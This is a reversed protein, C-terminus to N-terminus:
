QDEQKERENLYQFLDLQYTMGEKKVANQITVGLLRVPESNWHQELLQEAYAFLEDAMEIYDKLKIRRTITKRDNYRITLQVSDGVAKKRKLRKEVKDALYRLQGRLEDYDVIDHPFTQSSGISKFSAAKEPDVPRPDEGLARTKLREGNIGLIGKLLVTDSEVLDEITFIDYKNLKAATKRGIGYMEEIPLPWLKAVIDRKRLITIGNPKKMDSAMKALFKNPAIGISCPLSLDNAIHQQIAEAIEVPHGLDYSDTIDLFAEDISVPEVFTAYDELIRFIEGSVERYREHKPRRVILQPCLKKAEWLTMTTKVGKKRAEYSSTVIIGKREDPNGAIALPKGKLSPDDAIEVSAYFSNMDVHLIVRGNKPYGPHNSSM